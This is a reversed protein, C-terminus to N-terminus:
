NHSKRSKRSKRSTGKHIKGNGMTKKKGGVSPQYPIQVQQPQGQPQPPQQKGQKYQSSIRQVSEPYAVAGAIGFAAFLGVLVGVVIRTIKDYKAM